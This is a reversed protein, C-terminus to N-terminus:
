ARSPVSHHWDYGCFRCQRAAPTRALKQCRPCCNLFIDKRHEAFIRNATRELFAQWGEGALQLASPDDTLWRSFQCHSRAEQQAIVDSRGMTAKMTGALHSYAGKEEHNMFHRYYSMVYSVLDPNM